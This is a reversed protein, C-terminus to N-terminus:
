ASLVASKCLFFAPVSYTEFMLETIRERKARVNWQSLFVFVAHRYIEREGGSGWIWVEQLGREREGAGAISLFHM